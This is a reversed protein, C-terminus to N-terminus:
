TTTVDKEKVNRKKKSEIKCQDCVSNNGPFSASKIFPMDCTKCLEIYEIYLYSKGTIKRSIERVMQKYEYSDYQPM